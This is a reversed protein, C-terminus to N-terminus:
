DSDDHSRHKRRIIGSKDIVLQASVFVTTMM